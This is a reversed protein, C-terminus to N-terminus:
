CYNSLYSITKSILSEIKEQNILPEAWIFNLSMKEKFTSVVVGFVSGM